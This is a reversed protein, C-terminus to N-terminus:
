AMMAQEQQLFDTGLLLHFSASTNLLYSPLKARHGQDKKLYSDVSELIAQTSGESSQVLKTAPQIPPLGQIEGAVTKKILTVGSGPDLIGTKIRATTHIPITSSVQATSDAKMAISLTTMTGKGEKKPDGGKPCDKFITYGSEKCRSFCGQTALFIWCKAKTHREKSCYECVVVEAPTSDIATGTFHITEKKSLKTPKVRAKAIKPIEETYTKEEDLNEIAPQKLDAIDFELLKRIEPRLGDKLTEIKEETSM